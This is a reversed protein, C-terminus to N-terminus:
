GPPILAYVLDAFSPQAGPQPARTTSSVSPHAPSDGVGTGFGGPAPADATGGGHGDVPADAPVHNVAPAAFLAEVSEGLSPGSTESGLTTTDGTPPSSGLDGGGSSQKTRPKSSSAKRSPRKRERLVQDVGEIVTSWAIPAAFVPQELRRAQGTVVFLDDASVQIDVIEEFVKEAGSEESATDADVDSDGSSVITHRRRQEVRGTVVILDGVRPLADEGRARLARLTRAWVAIELSHEADEIVGFAFDGTERSVVRWSSLIGAFFPRAAQDAYSVAASLRQVNVNRVEGSPSWTGLIDAVERTAMPHEGLSVRLLDAQRAAREVPSWDRPDQEALPPFSPATAGSRAPASLGRVLRVMPLRAGFEDFAGAIVLHELEATSVRKVAGDPMTISSALLRATADEFSEFPGAYREHVILEAAARSVGKVEALGFVIRRQGGNSDTHVHTSARALNIVPPLVDVGHRALESLMARRAEAKDTRVLLAAGYELPWNAKLYATWFALQGYAFSHAKNFLYEGSAKFTQWLTHLTPEAFAPSTSGDPRTFEATGGPVAEESGDPATFVGGHIFLPELLDLDKKRKKSVAKQLKSKTYPGFGAISQALSMLQEQLVIVGETDDLVSAIVDQEAPVSTFQGYSKHARAAKIEAWLDHMGEGMPGPRYLAIVTSLDELTPAEGRSLMAGIATTLLRTMGASELQFVGATRGDALMQWTAAVRADDIATEDVGELDVDEGGDRILGLCYEAIDLNRLGLVDMKLMGFEELEPGEWRTVWMGSGGSGAKKLMPVIDRLDDASVLIGCAHVSEASKVGEIARALALLSRGEDGYAALAERFDHGVPSDPQTFADFPMPKVGKMPVLKALKEAAGVMDLTRAAAKLAGKSLGVVYTGIQAVANVGWRVQLFHHVEARRLFEFDVDIDPMGTRDPALFREFLLRADIPDVGVIGLCYSVASGAASNHVVYSDTMYSHDVPVEIDYVREGPIRTEISRIRQYVYEDDVFGISPRLKQGNFGPSTRILWSPQANSFEPREDDRSSLSIGAPAGVSWLLDRTQHALRDSVTTYSWRGNCDICGDGWWLGALLSRKQDIDLDTVWEPLHKTEACHRYGDALHEFLACVAASRVIYQRLDTDARESASAEIGWIARAKTPITWDDKSRQVAWGTVRSSDRRTWGNSAWAGLMFLLDPSIDIYRPTRTFTFKKSDLYGIWDAVSTFGVARLHQVLSARSRMMTTLRRRVPNGKRSLVTKVLESDDPTGARANAIAGAIANRSLGTAAAVDHISHPYPRNTRTREVIETGTVTFSTGSPAEGLLSAVDIRRPATGPSGPRPVCLLDGVELDQAEAWQPSLAQSPAWRYGQAIKRSEDEQVAKVALVKHDGTMTNGDVGDYFTRIKTLPEDIEYVFRNSVTRLAGTHTRVTDGIQVNRLCKYGSPTWVRAEGTLCGRGPGTSIPKKRERTADDVDRGALRAVWDEATYDSRCWSITDWEILFYDAFGKDSIIQLEHELRDVVHQALEAGYREKAGDYTLRRLYEDATSGDPTPFKPLRMQPDPIVDDEVRDAVLATNSCAEQWRPDDPFVARMEAETKVHYGTGSFRWRKPDSYLKKSGIALWADQAAEDHADVCHSDGTAVCKLGYADALEYLKELIELEGDIGHFMVEVYVNEAGVADILREVNTRATAAHAEARSRHAQAGLDDGTADAADAAREALVAQQLPRQLPGGLCGTLVLIGEGYCGVRHAPKMDATPHKLMTVDIRPTYWLDDYGDNHLRLLNHWGTRTAALVTLHHYRVEKGESGGDTATEGTAAREVIHETRSEGNPSLALYAEFGPIPKIGHERAATRLAWMGGLSGHDTVAVAGQGDRAIKAVIAPVKAISDKPSYESHVHLHSFAM